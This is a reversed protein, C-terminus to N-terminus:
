GKGAILFKRGVSGKAEYLDVGLGAARLREAAILGAPGGGVVAVRSCPDADHMADMIAAPRAAGAGSPTRPVAAIPASGHPSVLAPPLLGIPPCPFAPQVRRWASCDIASAPVAAHLGRPSARSRLSPTART